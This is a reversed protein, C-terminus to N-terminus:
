PKTRVLELKLERARDRALPTVVVDPGLVITGFRRGIEEIRLENLIGAALSYSGTGRVPNEVRPPSSPPGQPAKFALRGTMIAAELDEQAAAQVVQRAFEGLDGGVEVVGSGGPLIAQRMREILNAPAAAAPAVGDGKLVQSLVERVLRRLEGRDIAEDM